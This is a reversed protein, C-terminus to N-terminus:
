RLLERHWARERIKRFCHQVAHRLQPQAILSTETQLQDMSLHVRGAPSYFVPISVSLM